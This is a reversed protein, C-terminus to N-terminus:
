RDTGVDIIDEEMISKIKNKFDSDITTIEQVIKDMKMNVHIDPNENFVGQVKGVKMFIDAAAKIAGITNTNDGQEDYKSALEQTMTALDVLKNSLGEQSKILRRVYGKEIDTKQHYLIDKYLVIFKDVDTKSINESPNRQKLENLISNMSKGHIISRIVFDDEKLVAIKNMGQLNKVIDLAKTTSSVLDIVKGM